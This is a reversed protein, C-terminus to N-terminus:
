YTIIKTPINEVNYNLKRLEVTTFTSNDNYLNIWFFTHNFIMFTFNNDLKRILKQKQKKQIIQLYQMFM